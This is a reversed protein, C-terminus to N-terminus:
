VKNSNLYEKCISEFFFNDLLKCDLDIFGQYDEKKYIHIKLLDNDLEFKFSDIVIINNMM